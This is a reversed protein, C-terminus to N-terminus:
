EEAGFRAYAKSFGSLSISQDLATAGDRTEVLVRAAHGRQFQELLKISDPPAFYCSGPECARTELAQNDDVQIRAMVYPEDDGAIVLPVKGNRDHVFYVVFERDDQNVWLETTCFPPEGLNDESMCQFQWTGPESMQSWAPAGPWLLLLAAGIGTRCVRSGLM